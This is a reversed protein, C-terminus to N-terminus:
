IFLYIFIAHYVTIDTYNQFIGCNKVVIVFMKTPNDMVQLSSSPCFTFCLSFTESLPKGAKTSSLLSTWIKFLKHM